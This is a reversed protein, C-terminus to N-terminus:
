NATDTQLLYESGIDWLVYERRRHKITEVNFAMTTVTNVIEGLKLRYLFTTKGSRTPGFVVVTEWDKRWPFLFSKVLSAM